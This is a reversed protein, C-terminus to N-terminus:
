VLPLLSVSLFPFFFPLYIFLCFVSCSPSSLPYFFILQLSSPSSQRPGLPGRLSRPALRLRTMSREEGGGRLVGVGGVGGVGRRGVSFTSLLSGTGLDRTSM